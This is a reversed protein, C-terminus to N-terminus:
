PQRGAGRRAGELRVLRGIDGEGDVGAIGDAAVESGDACTGRQTLATTVREVCRDVDGDVDLAFLGVPVGLAIRLAHHNESLDADVADQGGVGFIHYAGEHVIAALHLAHARCLRLVVARTVGIIDSYHDLALPFHGVCGDAEADVVSRRALDIREDGRCGSDGEGDVTRCAIVFIGDDPLVFVLQQLGFREVLTPRADREIQVGVGLVLM